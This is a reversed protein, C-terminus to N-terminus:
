APPFADQLIYYVVANLAKTASEKSAGAADFTWRVDIYAAPTASAGKTVDQALDGGVPVSYYRDTM